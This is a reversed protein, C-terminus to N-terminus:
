TNGESSGRLINYWSTSAYEAAIAEEFGVHSSITPVPMVLHLETAWLLKHWLTIPKEEGPHM